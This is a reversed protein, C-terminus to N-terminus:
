KKFTAMKGAREKQSRGLGKPADAARAYVDFMGRKGDKKKNKKQKGGDEDTPEVLGLMSPAAQYDFEEEAKGDGSEILGDTPGNQSAAAQAKALKRAVKREKKERKERARQEAASVELDDDDLAQIEIRDAGRKRKGGGLQKVIFIDDAGDDVKRANTPVFTHEPQAPPAQEQADITDFVTATLDPLPLTLRVATAQTHYQSSRGHPTITSGWFSSQSLPNAPRKPTPIATRLSLTSTSATLEQVPGGNPLSNVDTVTVGSTATITTSPTTTLNDKAYTEEKRKRLLKDVDAMIDRMEPVTGDAKVRRVLAVLDDVRARLPPSVPVVVRFVAAKDVPMERAIALLAHNPLMFNVSEDDKRSVEDRWQHVARFVAFQHKSFIAPTRSMLRHWGVPGLGYKFDYIPYEYRQLATEKSKTLVNAILDGDPTTPTSGSILENRMCDYIYLLFHTDSRAYDFM